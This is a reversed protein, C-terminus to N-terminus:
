KASSRARRRLRADAADRGAAADLEANLQALEARLGGLEAPGHPATAPAAGAAAATAAARRTWSRDEGRLERIQTM